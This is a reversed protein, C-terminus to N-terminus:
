KSQCIYSREEKSIFSDDVGGEGRLTYFQQM